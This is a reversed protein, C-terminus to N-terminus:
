KVSTLSKSAAKESTKAQSKTKTPSPIEDLSKTPTCIGFSFQNPTVSSTKALRLCKQSVLNGDGSSNQEEKKQTAPIPMMQKYDDSGKRDHVGQIDYLVSILSATVSSLRSKSILIM